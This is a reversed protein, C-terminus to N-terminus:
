DMGDLRKRVWLCLAGFILFPWLVVVLPVSMYYNDEIAKNLVLGVGAYLLLWIM